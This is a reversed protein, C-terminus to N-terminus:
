KNKLKILPVWLSIELLNQLFANKNKTKTIIYLKLSELKDTATAQDTSDRSELGVARTWNVVAPDPIKIETRAQPVTFLLLLLLSELKNIWIWKGHEPCLIAMVYDNLISNM